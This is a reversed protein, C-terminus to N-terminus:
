SATPGASRNVLQVSPHEWDLSRAVDLVVVPGLRALHEAIARGVGGAGGSVVSSSM